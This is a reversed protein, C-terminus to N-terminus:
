AHDHQASRTPARAASGRCRTPSAWSTWPSTAWGPRPPGCAPLRRGRDPAHHRPAPEAVRGAHDPDGRCRARGRADPVHFRGRAGEFMGTNVYFPTVLTTGVNPADKRLEQRLSDHFGVAAHKSASYSVGRRLPVLGAASAVTVIHGTNRAIMEPLFARTTWFLSMANVGMVREVHEPSEELFFQGTVIGANNVLIDVPGADAAAQGVQERDTVDVVATQLRGPASASEAALGALGAEDIDWAVVDGGAALVRQCMLRGMGKGAGTILARSSAWDTM